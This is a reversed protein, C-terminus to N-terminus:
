RTLGEVPPTTTPWTAVAVIPLGSVVGPQRSVINVTATLNPPIVSLSTLDGAGGLDEQLSMKVICNYRFRM